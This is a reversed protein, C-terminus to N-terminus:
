LGLIEGKLTWALDQQREVERKPDLYPRITKGEVM